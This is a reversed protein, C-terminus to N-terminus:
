IELIEYRKQLYSSGINVSRLGDKEHINHLHTHGCFHHRIQPYRLLMEGLSRSGMFANCFGWVPGPKQVRMEEFAIMHTVAVITDTQPLLSQIGKELTALCQDHFETDSMDKKVFLGDNWRAFKPHYNQEFYKLPIDIERDRFSYDYWGVSGAIGIGNILVPNGELYEFGCEEAWSAFLQEYIIQSDGDRTWLDHNGCLAFKRGPFDSFLQFCENFLAPNFAANDGALILVDAGLTNIERAMERASADGAENKGFHLDATLILRM